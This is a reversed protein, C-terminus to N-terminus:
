YVPNEYINGIVEMRHSDDPFNWEDLWDHIEDFCFGADGWKVIARSDKIAVIDGEYIGYGVYQMIPSDEKVKSLASILCVKGTAHVGFGGYEMANGNWARFKVERM